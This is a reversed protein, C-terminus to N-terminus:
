QAFFVAYFTDYYVKGVEIEFGEAQLYTGLYTNQSKLRTNQIM